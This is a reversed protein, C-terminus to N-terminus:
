RGAQQKAIIEKRVELVQIPVGFYDATESLYPDQLMSICTKKPMTFEAAFQNAEWEARANILESSKISDANLPFRDQIYAHLVYHGIAHAVYFRDRSNSTYKSLHIVFEGEGTITIYGNPGFPIQEDVIINGGLKLVAAHIDHLDYEVSDSVKRAFDELDEISLGCPIPASHIYPSLGTENSM